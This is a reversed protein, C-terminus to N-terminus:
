APMFAIRLAVFNTAFTDLMGALTSDQGRKAALQCPLVEM